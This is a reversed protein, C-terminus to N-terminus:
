MDPQDIVWRWSGDPQRRAVEATVRGGQLRTSTLALDGCRLVPQLEGGSGGPAREAFVGRFVEAIADSGRTVEGAPLALIADAEYLTALGAFDGAEVFKMFLRPIDEPSAAKEREPESTM